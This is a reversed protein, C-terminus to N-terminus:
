PPPPPLWSFWALSTQLLMRHCCCRHHGKASFLQHKSAPPWRHCRCCRALWGPSWRLDHCGPWGPSRRCPGCEEGFNRKLPAAASAAGAMEGALEKAQGCAAPPPLPLMRCALWPPPAPFWALWALSAGVHVRVAPPRERRVPVKEPKGAPPWRHHSLVGLLDIQRGRTGWDPAHPVRLLGVQCCNSKAGRPKVQDRAGRDRGRLPVDHVLAVRPAPVGGEAGLRAAVEEALAAVAAPLEVRGLQRAEAVVHVVRAHVLGVEGPLAARLGADGESAAHTGGAAGAAHARVWCPGRQM